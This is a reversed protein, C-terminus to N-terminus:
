PLLEIGLWRRQTYEQTYWIECFRSSHLTSCDLVAMQAATISSEHRVPTPIKVKSMWLFRCGWTLTTKAIIHSDPWRSYTRSPTSRFICPDFHKLFAIRSWLVFLSLIQTPTRQPYPDVRLAAINKSDCSSHKMAGMILRPTGHPAQLPIMSTKSTQVQNKNM